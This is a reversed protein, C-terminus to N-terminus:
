GIVVKRTEVIPEIPLHITKQEGTYVDIGVKVDIPMENGTFYQKNGDEDLSYM